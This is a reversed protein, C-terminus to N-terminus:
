SNPPSDKMAVFFCDTERGVCRVARFGTADRLV